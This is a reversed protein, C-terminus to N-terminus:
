SRVYLGINPNSTCQRRDIFVYLEGGTQPTEPREVPAPIDAADWLATPPVPCSVGLLSISLVAHGTGNLAQTVRVTLEVYRLVPDELEHLRNRDRGQARNM